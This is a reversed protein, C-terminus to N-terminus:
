SDFYQRTLFEISNCNNGSIIFIRMNLSIDKTVFNGPEGMNGKQGNMGPLGPLGPRGEFGMDGKM